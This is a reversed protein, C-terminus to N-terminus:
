ERDTAVAEARGSKLWHRITSEPHQVDAAIRRFSTGEARLELIHAATEPTLTSRSGRSALGSQQRETASITSQRRRNVTAERDSMGPLRMLPSAGPKRFRARWAEARSEKRHEARRIYRKRAARKQAAQAKRAQTAMGLAAIDWGSPARAWEFTEEITVGGAGTRRSTARVPQQTRVNRRRRGRGRGRRKVMPDARGM